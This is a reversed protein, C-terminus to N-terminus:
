DHRIRPDIFGYSLDVILNVVVFVVSALVVGAQVVPFDRAFVAEVVTRGVGPWAFVVEIVFAGGLMNAFYVGIMTVLPVAANRLAYRWIILREPIGVAREMRIYDSELIDLMSSRLTRTMAAVPYWGLAIAPLILHALTGRGYAPLWQLKVAIVVILLLGVWFGPMAQGLMAFLKATNDIWGGRYAASLVGLPVALLIAFVLGALALELTAPLRDLLLSMAPQNWLYSDGFDGRVADSFFLGFQVVFPRDLGLEVRMAAFDEETADMPLLLAVPDGSLRQAIFVIFLAGVIAIAGQWLRKYIYQRM